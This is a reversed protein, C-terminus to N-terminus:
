FLGEAHAVRIRGKYGMRRLKLSFIAIWYYSSGMLNVSFMFAPLLFLWASLGFYFVAFSTLILSLIGLYVTIQITQVEATLYQYGGRQVIKTSVVNAKSAQVKEHFAVVEYSPELKLTFEPMGVGGTAESM